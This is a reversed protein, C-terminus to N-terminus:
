NDTSSLSDTIHSQLSLICVPIHDSLLDFKILSLFVVCIQSRIKKILFRGVQAASLQIQTEQEYYLHLLSKNGFFWQWVDFYCLTLASNLLASIHGSDTGFM